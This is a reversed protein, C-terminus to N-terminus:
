EIHEFFSNKEVDEGVTSRYLSFWTCDYQKGDVLLSYTPNHLQSFHKNMAIFAVQMPSRGDLEDMPRNFHLDLRKSEDWMHLYLKPVDWAGYKEAIDPFVSEDGAVEVSKVCYRSTMVHQYHGYEGNWDQTLVVDPKYKRILGVMARYTNEKGWLWEAKSYSDVKYDQFGVFVPHIKVGHTWLCDLAEAHKNRDDGTMYVVLVNYGQASLQSLVGSFYLTEDNMHPVIMMLDIKEPTEQWNQVVQSVRGREYIRLKNLGNDTDGSRITIGVVGEELEYYLNWKQYPNSEQITRIVTGTSDYLTIEIKSPAKDWEMYLVGADKEAPIRIKITDTASSPSWSTGYSTDLFASASGRSVAFTCSDNMSTPDDCKSAMYVQMSAVQQEENASVVSVIAMKEGASLGTLASADSFASLDYEYVGAERTFKRSVVAENSLQRLDYITLRVEVIPINSRVIGSVAFHTGPTEMYPVSFDECSAALPDEVIKEVLVTQEAVKLLDERVYGIVGDFEVCYWGGSRGTVTCKEGPSMSGVKASNADPKKRINVGADIAPTGVVVTTEIYEVADSGATEAFAPAFALLLVLILSLIRNNM